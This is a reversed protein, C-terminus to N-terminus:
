CTPECVKSLDRSFHAAFGKGAIVRKPGDTGLAACAELIYKFLIKSAISFLDTPMKGLVISGLQEEGPLFHIARAHM